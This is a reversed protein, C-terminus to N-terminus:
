GTPTSTPTRSRRRGRREGIRISGPPLIDPSVRLINDKLDGPIPSFWLDM